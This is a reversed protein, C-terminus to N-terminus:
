LKAKLTNFRLSSDTMRRTVKYEELLKSEYAASEGGWTQPDLSVTPNNAHFNDIAKKFDPKVYGPRNVSHDLVVARGFNSKVFDKIKKNGADVVVQSEADHLRKIFDLVQIDLYEPLTLVKLLAALPKNHVKQNHTSASCGQRLLNKLETSTIKKGQTLSSDNYYIVAGGGTGEVTWGCSKAYNDYLDPHADRFKALQTSLEGKGELGEEDKVTKQMAGATIVESDYSHVADMNGENESMAVLITKEDSTVKGSSVLSDWRTYSALTIGGKYLPGYKSGYKVVGFKDAYLEECDCRGGKFSDLFVLPHMHWPKEEMDPVEKMWTIKDIFAETYTKWLPADTTLTDLYTKWLPDDKGYYWESGHKAIIRYLHDRYSRNHIAQLYEDESYHGDHNADIQELLYKYNYENMAHSSRTEDSAAKYMQELIGKVVNDPHKVGDILDFSEPTKDLTVFGLEGLAYQSVKRISAAALWGFEVNIQYYAPEAGAAVPQGDAGLTAVKSRTAIGQNRTRRTSAVIQGQGNKMFLAADKEYKLYAAKDNVDVNDPNTLFTVLKDGPSLCELHVQYRSLKGNDEPLQFFGMHGIGDGASIAVPPTAKVVEGFAPQTDSAVPTVPTLSDGDSVVWVRDGKKLKGVDKGLTVLSFTHTVSTPINGQSNTDNRTVQTATDGPVYSVPFNEALHGASKRQQVDDPSLYYSWNTRAKADTMGGPQVSYAPTCKSWWSPTPTSSAANLAGRDSVTWVKTGAAVAAGAANTTDEVVMVETFQRHDSDRTIINNSLTVRTNKKLSGAATGARTEDASAYYRQVGAVTRESVNGQTVYAIFPALNMYLTYFTLGSSENEGPQIDHKVLVFSTSFQLQEDRWTIAASDYDKCVRYAVIEGDAMCRIFQEGKHNYAQEAESDTSLACWPITADTIHIGGHWMGQSGVLYQGSVEEVIAALLADTDAFAQGKNDAPVPHSIKILKAPM